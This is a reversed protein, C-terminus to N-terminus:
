EESPQKDEESITTEAELINDKWKLGNLFENLVDINVDGNTLYFDRFKYKRNETYFMSSSSHVYDKFVDNWLYFIVKSVLTEASIKGNADAKAFWYGIQKDESDTVDEIRANVIEIFKWWDYTTNGVVIKYNKGENKIPIYKWDWRRKFASDIPFLSQDSTNMTALIYLNAPLRMIRGSKIGEDEINVNDFTKALYQELDTDPKIEYSSMGDEGRDLLQFIDGFIQACNGRNIEEIVLYYPKSTDKWAEIYATTFAQPVFDYTIESKGEESKNAIPKYCGVFSAYDSDPHFTTRISNGKNTKGDITHSKGTGPAGYYVVQLNHTTKNNRETIINNVVEIESLHNSFLEITKLFSYYQKIANSRFYQNDDTDRKIFDQDNFLIDIVDSKFKNPSKIAFIDTIHTWKRLNYDFLKDSKLFAMYSTVASSKLFYGNTNSRKSLVCTSLYKKFLLEYDISNFKTNEIENVCSPYLEDFSNKSILIYNMTDQSAYLPQIFPGRSLEGPSAKVSDGESNINSGSINLEKILEKESYLYSNYEIEREELSFIKDINSLPLNFDEVFKKVLDQNSYDEPFSEKRYAWIIVDYINATNESQSDLFNLWKTSFKVYWFNGNDQYTKPNDSLCFMYELYSSLNSSNISYTIGPKILGSVQKMISLFGWSKNTMTDQFGAYAKAVTNLSFYKMNKLM